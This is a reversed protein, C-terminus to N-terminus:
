KGVPALRTQGEVQRSVSVVVLGGHQGNCGAAVVVGVGGAGEGDVVGM